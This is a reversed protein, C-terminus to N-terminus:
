WNQMPALKIPGTRMIIRRVKTRLTRLEVRMNVEAGSVWNDIHDLHAMAGETNELVTCLIDICLVLERVHEMVVTFHEKKLTIEIRDTLAQALLTVNGLQRACEVRRAAYTLKQAPNLQAQTEPSLLHDQAVLTYLSYRVYILQSARFGVAHKLAQSTQQLWHEVLHLGQRARERERRERLRQLTGLDQTLAEQVDEPVSASASPCLLKQCEYLAQDYSHQEERTLPLFSPDRAITYAEFLRDIERMKEKRDGPSELIAHVQLMATQRDYNPTDPLFLDDSLGFLTPPIDLSLVLSSDRFRDNTGDTDPSAERKRLYDTSWQLEGALEQKSLCRWLRMYYIVQGYHPHIETEQPTTTEVPKFPAYIHWWHQLDAFLM